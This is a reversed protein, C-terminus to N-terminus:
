LRSHSLTSYTVTCSLPECNRRLLQKSGYYRAVSAWVFVCADSTNEEDSAGKMIHSVDVVHCANCSVGRVCRLARWLPFMMNVLALRCGCCIRYYNDFARFYDCTRALGNSVNRAKIPAGRFEMFATTEPIMGTCHM